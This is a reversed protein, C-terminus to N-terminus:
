KIKKSDKETLIKLVSDTYKYQNKVKDIKEIENKYKNIYDYATKGDNDKESPVAGNELLYKIIKYQKETNIRPVEEFTETYCAKMLPTRGKEDKQNIKAGKKVLLKVADYNNM